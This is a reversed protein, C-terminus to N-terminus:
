MVLEGDAGRAEREAFPRIASVAQFGRPLKLGRQARKGLYPQLDSPKLNTFRKGAHVVLTGDEPVV